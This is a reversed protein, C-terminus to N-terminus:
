KDRIHRLDEAIRFRVMISEFTLRLLLIVLLAAFLFVPATWLMTLIVFGSSGDIAFDGVYVIWLVFTGLAILVQCIVYLVSVIIPTFFRNFKIDFLLNRKAVPDTRSANMTSTTPLPMDSETTMAIEGQQTFSDQIQRTDLHTVGRVSSLASTVGKRNSRALTVFYFVLCFLLAGMVAGGVGRIARSVIESQWDRRTVTPAVDQTSVQIKYRIDLYGSPEIQDSISTLYAIDRLCQEPSIRKGKRQFLNSSGAGVPSSYPNIVFCEQIEPENDSDGVFVETEKYQAQGGAIGVISCFAVVAILLKRKTLGSKGRSSAADENM